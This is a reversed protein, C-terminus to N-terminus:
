NIIRVECMYVVRAVPMCGYLQVSTFEKTWVPLGYHTVRYTVFKNLLYAYHIPEHEQPTHPCQVTSNLPRMNNAIVM